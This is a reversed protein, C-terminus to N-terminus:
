VATLIHIYTCAHVYKDHHSAIILSLLDNDDDRWQHESNSCIKYFFSFKNTKTNNNKATSWIFSWKVAVINHM